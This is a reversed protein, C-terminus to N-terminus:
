VGIRKEIELEAKREVQERCWSIYHPKHPVGRGQQAEPEGHYHGILVWFAETYERELVDDWQENWAKDHAEGYAQNWVEVRQEEDLENQGALSELAEDAAARLEDAQDDMLEKMSEMTNDRAIDQAEHEMTDWRKEAEAKAREGMEDAYISKALKAVVKNIPLEDREWRAVTNWHSGLDKAMKPQSWGLQQRIERLHKGKM